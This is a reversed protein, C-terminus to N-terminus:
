KTKPRYEERIRVVRAVYFTGTALYQGDPSFAISWVADGRSPEAVKSSSFAFRMRGATVDWLVVDCSSATALWRGDPSFAVSRVEAPPVELSRIKRGTSVDWIAATKDRSGTALCGGDPSFAISVVTDTHGELITLRQGTSVNWM